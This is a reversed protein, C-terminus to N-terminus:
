CRICTSHATLIMSCTYKNFCACQPARCVYPERQGEMERVTGGIARVGSLTCLSTSAMLAFEITLTLETKAEFETDNVGDINLIRHTGM